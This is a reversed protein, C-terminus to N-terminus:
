KWVSRCVACKRIRQYYESEIMWVSVDSDYGELALIDDLNNILNFLAYPKWGGGSDAETM